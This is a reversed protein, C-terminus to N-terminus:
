GFIRWGARRDHLYSRDLETMESLGIPVCGVTSNKGCEWMVDVFSNRIHMHYADISGTLPHDHPGHPIIRM